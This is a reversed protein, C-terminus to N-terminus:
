DKPESLLQICNSLTCDYYSSLHKFGQQQIWAGSSRDLSSNHEQNGLQRQTPKGSPGPHRSDCPEARPHCRSCGGPCESSRISVLKPPFATLLNLLGLSHTPQIDREEESVFQQPDLKTAASNHMRYKSQYQCKKFRYAACRRTQLDSPAEWELEKEKATLTLM